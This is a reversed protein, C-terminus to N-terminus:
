KLQLIIIINHHTKGYMLIFWGYTYMHERWGLDRRGDGEGGLNEWFMLKPHGAEYM